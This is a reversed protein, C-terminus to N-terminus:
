TYEPANLVGAAVLDHRVDEITLHSYTDITTSVSAHGLLRQVIEAKIKSRLLQTTYSHRFMHPTAVIGTRRSLRAFLDAVARYSLPRGIPASWLRVFLYDSDLDGYERHLYEAHLRLWGAGVPVSREWTKARAGNANRRCRVDVVGDATRVDEHRLGLVEGIRMGTENLLGLLVRDRLRDCAGLLTTIEDGSLTKPRREPERLRLDSRHPRSRKVHALFPRFSTAASAVPRSAGRVILALAVGHRLHFEYFSTVAALKRNIM